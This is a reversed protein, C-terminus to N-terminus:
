KRFRAYNSSITQVSRWSEEGYYWNRAVIRAAMEAPTYPLDTWGAPRGERSQRRILRDTYQRYVGKIVMRQLRKDVPLLPPRGRPKKVNGTLFQCLYELLVDPIKGVFESRLVDALEAAGVYDGSQIRKTIYETRDRCAMGSHQDNFNSVKPRGRPRKIKGTLFRCLYDLFLGPFSLSEERRLAEALDEGNVYQGEVIRKSLWGFHSPDIWFKSAPM